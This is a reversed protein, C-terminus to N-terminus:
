GDREELASEVEHLLERSSREPSESDMIASVVAVGDAGARICSAANDRGVGGIAVLPRSTLERLAAIGALGVPDPADPKTLTAFVSSVGFYDASEHARLLEDPSTVTLGIIAEDGLLERAREVAEDGQGLHVGDCRLEVAVEVLDNVLLPVGRSRCVELLVSAEEVAQTISADKNRYQVATVGGCIAMRVSEALDTSWRM